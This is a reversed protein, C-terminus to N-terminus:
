QGRRVVKRIENVLERIEVPKTFYNKIGMSYGRQKDADSGMASLVVVPIAATGKQQQLKEMVDWGTVEPMMIDLLILDPENETAKEIADKGNSAEITRFGEETLRQRLLQLTDEEDDVILITKPRTSEGLIRQLSATLLTHGVPKVLYDAAGLEMGKMKEKVITLILVPIMATEPSTKLVELLDFGDQDPLLVDLVIADPQYTRASELGLTATEATLVRFGEDELYM